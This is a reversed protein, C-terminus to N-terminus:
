EEGSSKVCFNFVMNKACWAHEDDEDVLTLCNHCLLHSLMLSSASIQILLLHALLNFFILNLHPRYLIYLTSPKTHHLSNEIPSVFIWFGPPRIIHVWWGPGICNYQHIM